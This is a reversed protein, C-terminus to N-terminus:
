ISNMKHQPNSTKEKIILPNLCFPQLPILQLISSVFHRPASPSRGMVGLL